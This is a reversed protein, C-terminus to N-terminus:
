GKAAKLLPYPNVARGQWWGEGAAMRHVEFHLHPAGPDADGTAGVTAIAQGARIAQGEALGPAYADLHAYYYVVGTDASREYITLGGLRSEFLKEIHGDAVARVPTGTPAMIDIGQHARTGNGRAENWNDRLAAGQVPTVLASAAPAPARAVDPGTGGEEAHGTWGPGTVHVMTAFAVLGIVVLLAVGIGFRNM